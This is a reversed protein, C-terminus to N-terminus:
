RPPSAPPRVVLVLEERRWLYPDTEYVQVENTSLIEMTKSYTKAPPIIPKLTASDVTILYDIVTLGQAKVEWSGSAMWSRGDGNTITLIFLHEPMLLLVEEIGHHKRVFRGELEKSTYTRFYDCSSLLAMYACFVCTTGANAFIKSTYRKM